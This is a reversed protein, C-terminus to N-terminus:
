NFLFEVEVIGHILAVATSKDPLTRSNINKVNIYFNKTHKLKRLERKIADMMTTTDGRKTHVNYVHITQTVRGTITSKNAIDNDFQEGVFIFPYAVDNAPLYDYTDNHIAKCVSYVAIFIQQQPGLM